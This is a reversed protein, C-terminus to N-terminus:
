TASCRRAARAPSRSSTRSAPSRSASTPARAAGGVERAAGIGDRGRIDIGLLAGTMADFGTAFVIADLEYERTPRACGTPTIEEIPASRVDVLTVNDRNFTEFYDTDPLPAQHRVPLRRACCSPSRPDKVTERIKRACSSPPRDDNAEENVLLDTFRALLVAHRGADWREEFERQASRRTSRSRRGSAPDAIAVGLTSARARRAAAGRLAGESASTSPTSRARQARARQLEAHAPLRSTHAQEAIIPISQIGSSGTGIVGVRKGTFDVGEHPWAGTHYWEGEFRTSARSTAAGARRSAAPRWSASSRRRADRRRRDDVTWRDHAEDFARRDRPDRVPHRPRLDFRDAVHNLYRLIEPQPPTASPGSGSRSSSTPSRTRTSSARSTAARAPTATGTGPAASATAPRSVRASLGLGRLRHLMYLGAFGAGVIVADYRQAETGM